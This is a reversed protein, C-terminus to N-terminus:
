HILLVFTIALIFKLTFKNNMATNCTQYKTQRDKVTVEMDCQDTKVLALLCVSLEDNTM